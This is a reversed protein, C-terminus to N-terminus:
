GCFFSKLVGNEVKRENDNREPRKTERSEDWGGSELWEVGIKSRCSLNSGTTLWLYGANREADM